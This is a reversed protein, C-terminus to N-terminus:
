RHPLLMSPLLRKLMVNGRTGNGVHQICYYSRRIKLYISREMSEIKVVSTCELLTKLGKLSVNVIESGDNLQKDRILCNEELKSSSESAMIILGFFLVRLISSYKLFSCSILTALRSIVIVQTFAQRNWNDFRRRVKFIVRTGGVNSHM